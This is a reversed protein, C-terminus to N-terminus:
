EALTAVIRKPDYRKVSNSGPSAVWVSGLGFTILGGGGEGHFEQLVKEKEATPSIRIVPFGPLSAWLSGDGFALSATAAGPIGLDVTAIVKNTKPDIRSIKGEKRGLVWVSGEGFALAIPEAAVDIRKTVLSTKPDIRAVRDEGPCTVWISSDASLISTCNPALRMEGVVTNEKPDIRQLTTKSDALLWISDENAAVANRATVKNGVPIHAALTMAGPAGAPRGAGTGGPGRQPKEGAVPKAEAPAQAAEPKAADPKPADSPKAADPRRTDGGPGGGPGGRGGRGGGATEIKALTHNGCAPVWFANFASLMGGCGNEVKVSVLPEAPKNTKPDIRKVATATAILAADNFQMGVAPSDLEIEAEAVLTAAPILVGPTKLGAKPGAAVAAAPKTQKKKSEEAGSAAVTTAVGMALLILFRRFNSSM